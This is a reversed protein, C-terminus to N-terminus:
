EETLRQLLKEKLLIKETKFIVSGQLELVNRGRRHNDDGYRVDRQANDAALPALVSSSSNLRTRAWAYSCTNADLHAHGDEDLEAKSDLSAPCIVVRPDELLGEDFMLQIASYGSQASTTEGEFVSDKESKAAKPPFPYRGNEQMYIEAALYINGLNKACAAVRAKEQVARIGGFSLAALLSIISIVVLLEIMTFGRGDKGDSQRCRM